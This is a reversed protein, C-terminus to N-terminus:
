VHEGIWHRERGGLSDLVRGELNAVQESRKSAALAHEDPGAQDILLEAPGTAEIVARLSVGGNRQYECRVVGDLPFVEIAVLWSGCSDVLRGAAAHLESRGVRLYAVVRTLPDTTETELAPEEGNPGTLHAEADNELAWRELMVQREAVSEASGFLRVLFAADSRARWCWSVADPRFSAAPSMGCFARLVDTSDTSGIEFLADRAPLPWVRLSVETLAGLRGRSGCWLRQVDYGAVNKVVPRGWRLQRGDHAVVRCALLHRRMSGFTPDLACPAAAAVLGGVTAAPRSCSLPLWQGQDALTRVLDVIRMGAGVTVVLDRPEHAVLRSFHAAALSVIDVELEDLRTQLGDSAQRAGTFVAPAADVSDSDAAALLERLEGSREPTLWAM